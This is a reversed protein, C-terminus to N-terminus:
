KSILLYEIVGIWPALGIAGTSGYNANGLQSYAVSTHDESYTLLVIGNILGNNQYSRPVIYKTNDLAVMWKYTNARQLFYSFSVSSLLTGSTSYAEVVNGNNALLVQGNKSVCVPNRSLGPISYTNLITGSTNLAYLYSNESRVTYIYILDDYYHMTLQLTSANPLTTLVTTSITTGSATRISKTVQLSSNVEYYSFTQDGNYVRCETSNDSTFTHISGGWFYPDGKYTGTVGFINVGNKINGATLNASGQVIGGSYYGAQISQNTTGPTFTPAGRNPMSGTVKSGNVYATKGSLIDAPTATADSTDPGVPISQINDAMQQFTDSPSTPIGKDTIAGAVLAKGDSVSTFLEVLAGEVNTATFHGGTDEIGINTALHANTASSSIHNDFDSKKAAGIDEPTLPDDGGSAHRSAHNNATELAADATAAADNIEQGIQNMDAPLVTDNMTWDTKAM